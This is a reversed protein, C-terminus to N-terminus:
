ALWTSHATNPILLVSAGSGLGQGSSVLGGSSLGMITDSGNPTLTITANGGLDIIKLSKSARAAVAPLTLEVSGPSALNIVVLRTTAVVATTGTATIDIPTQAILEFATSDLGDLLDADLGSGAGDVTLLLALIDAPHVIDAVAILDIWDGAGVYRWQIMLGGNNRFEVQLPLLSPMVRLRIRTNGAVM